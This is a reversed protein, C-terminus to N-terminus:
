EAPGRLVRDVGALLDDVTKLGLSIRIVGLDLGGGARGRGAPRGRPTRHVDSVAGGAAAPTATSTPTHPGAGPRHGQQPRKTGASNLADFTRRKHPDALVTYAELIEKFRAAAEKNGPNVDPHYQRALDRYATRIEQPSATKNVGLIKYYDKYAPITM